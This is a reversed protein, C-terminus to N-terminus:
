FSPFTYLKIVLECTIPSAVSIVIVIFLNPFIYSKVLTFTIPFSGLVSKATKLKEVFKLKGTTSNSSELLKSTPSTTKAIPFGVGIPM